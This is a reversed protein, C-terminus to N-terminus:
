VVGYQFVAGDVVQIIYYCSLSGAIISDRRWIVSKGLAQVADGSGVCQSDITDQKPDVLTM